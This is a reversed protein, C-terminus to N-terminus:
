LKRKCVWMGEEKPMINPSSDSGSGDSDSDGRMAKSKRRGSPPVASRPERVQVLRLEMMSQHPGHNLQLNLPYESNAVSRIEANSNLNVSFM